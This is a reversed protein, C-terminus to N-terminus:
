VVALMLNQNINCSETNPTTTTKSGFVVEKAVKQGDYHWYTNMMAPSTWGAIKAIVREPNGAAHLDTVAIHRLDHVRLNTIGAIKLCFRWPKKLSLFQRYNGREDIWYFLYPCDSPISKFYDQMEEPIPKHIPIGAKSDPIYITGNFPNYQERKATMLESVRCPVLLMYQIIPLIHPRYEQITNILRLREDQNLYRDRPREDLKPFKFATIPNKDIIELAQLHNFVARVISTYRNISASCRVKGHITPATLLHKRYVSFQEAFVDIRIHGLERRVFDVMQKHQKSLKGQLHLKKVYLDVADSFTSAYSTLSCQAQLEQILDAERLKAEAQTGTLTIQKSIPYGLKNDRVSVRVQWKNTGLKKIAM